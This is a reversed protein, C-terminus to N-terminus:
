ATPAVTAVRVVRQRPHLNRKVDALAFARDVDVPHTEGCVCPLAIPETPENFDFRPLEYGAAILHDQGGRDTVVAFLSGDDCVIHLSRAAPPVAKVTANSLRHHTPPMQHQSGDPLTVDVAAGRVYPRDKRRRMGSM